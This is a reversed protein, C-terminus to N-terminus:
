SGAPPDTVMVAYDTDGTALVTVTAGSVPTSVDFQQVGAGCAGAHDVVETGGSTVTLAVPGDGRCALSVSYNGAALSPLITSNPTPQSGAISYSLTRAHTITGTPPPLLPDAWLKVEALRAADAAASAAQELAAPTGTPTPSSGSATPSGAPSGAASGSPSPSGSTANPSDGTGPSDTPTCASLGAALVATAAGAILTRVIRQSTGTIPSGQAPM